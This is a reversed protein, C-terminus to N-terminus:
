TEKKENTTIILCHRLASRKSILHRTEAWTWNLPLDLAFRGFRVWHKLLQM